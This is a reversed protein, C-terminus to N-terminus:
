ILKKTQYNNDTNLLSTLVFFIVFFIYTVCNFGNLVTRHAIYRPASMQTSLESLINTVADVSHLTQTEPLEKVQSRTLCAHLCTQM